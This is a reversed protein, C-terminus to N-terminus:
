ARQENIGFFTVATSDSDVGVFIFCLPDFAVFPFHTSVSPSQNFPLHIHESFCILLESEAFIGNGIDAMMIYQKDVERIVKEHVIHVVEDDLLVACMDPFIGLPFM